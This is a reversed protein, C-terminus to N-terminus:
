DAQPTPDALVPQSRGADMYERMRARIEDDPIVREIQIPIGGPGSHENKVTEPANLGLLKCLRGQADAAARLDGSDVALQHLKQYRSIAEGIQDERNFRATERFRANAKEIILDAAREGIDWSESAFQIVAQRGHGKVLMSFVKELRQEATIQSAKGPVPAKAEETQIQDLLATSAAVARLATEPTESKLAQGLAIKVSRLQQRLEALLASEAPPVAAPPPPVPLPAKGLHNKKHRQVGPRTLGFREAVAREPDGSRIAQDLAAREKPPLLCARCSTKM